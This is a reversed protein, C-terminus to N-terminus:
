LISEGEDKRIKFIRQVDAQNLAFALIMDSAMVGYNPQGYFYGVLSILLSVGTWAMLIVWSWRHIRLFGSLVVIGAVSLMFYTASSLIANGLATLAGGSFLPGSIGNVFVQQQILPEAFQYLHIVFLVAISAAIVTVAIPREKRNSKKRKTMTWWGGYRFFRSYLITFIPIWKKSPNYLLLTLAKPLPDLIHLPLIIVYGTRLCTKSHPEHEAMPPEPTVIPLQM